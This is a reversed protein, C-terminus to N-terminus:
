SRIQVGSWYIPFTSVLRNSGRIEDWRVEFDATYFTGGARTGELHLLVRSTGSGTVGVVTPSASGPWWKAEKAGDLLQRCGDPYDPIEECIAEYRGDRALQVTRDLVARAANEEIPPWVRPKNLRAQLVAMVVAFLLIGALSLWLRVYRRNLGMPVGGFGSYGRKV